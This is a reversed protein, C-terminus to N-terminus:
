KEETEYVFFSKVNFIPYISITYKTQDLAHSREVYGLKIANGVAKMAADLNKCKIKFDEGEILDVDITHPKDESREVEEEKKEVM